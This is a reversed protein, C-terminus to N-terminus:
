SSFPRRPRVRAPERLLGAEERAQARLQIAAVGPEGVIEGVQKRAAPDIVGDEVFQLGSQDARVHADLGGPLDSPPKRLAHCAVFQAVELRQDPAARTAHELDRGTAPRQVDVARLLREHDQDDADVADPLVVVIPLSARRRSSRLGCPAARRRRCRGRRPSRAAASRPRARRRGPSRAPARARSGARHDEVRQLRRLRAADVHQDDVGGAAQVRLGVQHLLQLLHLAHDARRRGPAGCSTSSTSSASWPGSRSRAPRLQEVLRDADGADHQGLEIARRLPPMTRAM